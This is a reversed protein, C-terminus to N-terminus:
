KYLERPTILQNTYLLKEIFPSAEEEISKDIFDRPINVLRETRSPSGVPCGSSTPAKSSSSIM